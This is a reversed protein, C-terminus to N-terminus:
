GELEIRTLCERLLPGYDNKGPCVFTCLALDEEDLELAGLQGAFETDQVLLAKLLPTAMIDLPMVEEYMGIPVVARRSGGTSTTMSFLGGAADRRDAPSGSGSGSSGDGTSGDLPFWASAFVRRISYKRRGPLMWGLFERETGEALVTVQTHYRGLFDTPCTGRRGSLVSGSLVRVRDGAATECPLPGGPILGYSTSEDPASEIQLRTLETLSAGLRTRVLRPRRVLPGALSVIRETMLEGTLFLHGVAVVDQYGIHWVTKNECVPDIAHIHTGVLGAPHPGSFAHYTAPVVGKGPISAGDAHCVHCYGEALSSLVQIGAIFLKEQSALVVYPDASLPNTDIATVFLSHPISEPSPVKSFPRARLATWLGSRVLQDRVAQHDIRALDKESYSDFTERDDGECTIVLSLFKRKAGRNITVRGSAPATYQVGPTKKDSFVVQGLRVSDGDEVEMTPKLGVYDDGILAVHRVAPGDDILEGDDISQTSTRGPLQNPAGAIPLDLGKTIRGKTIRGKTIRGKTIRGKTIRIASM